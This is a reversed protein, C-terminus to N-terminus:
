VTSSSPVEAEAFNQAIRQAQQQSQGEKKDSGCGALRALVLALCLALVFRRNTVVRKLLHSLM